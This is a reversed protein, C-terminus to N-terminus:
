NINQGTFASLLQITENAKDLEETLIRNQM